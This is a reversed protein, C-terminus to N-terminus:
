RPKSQQQVAKEAEVAQAANQAGLLNEVRRLPLDLQPREIAPVLKDSEAAAAAAAHSSALDAQESTGELQCRGTAEQIPRSEAPSHSSCDPELQEQQPCFHRLYSGTAEQSAPSCAAPVTHAQPDTGQDALPEGGPSATCPDLQTHQQAAQRPQAPLNSEPGQQLM